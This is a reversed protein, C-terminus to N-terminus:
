NAIREQIMGTTEGIYMPNKGTKAVLKAGFILWM